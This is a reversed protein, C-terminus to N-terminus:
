LLLFKDCFITESHLCYLSTVLGAIFFTSNESLFYTVMFQQGLNVIQPLLYHAINNLNILTVQKTQHRYKLVAPSYALIRLFLFFFCALRM